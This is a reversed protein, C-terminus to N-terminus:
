FFPQVPEYPLCRSKGLLFRAGYGPQRAPVENWETDVFVCSQGSVQALYREADLRLCGSHPTSYVCSVESLISTQYMNQSM